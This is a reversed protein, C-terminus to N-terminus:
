NTYLHLLTSFLLMLPTPPSSWTVAERGRSGGAEMKAGNHPLLCGLARRRGEAETLEEQCPPAAASPQKDGHPSEPSPSPAEQPAPPPPTTHLSSPTFRRQELPVLECHQCHDGDPSRSHTWCSSRTHRSLLPQLERGAREKNIDSREIPDAAM